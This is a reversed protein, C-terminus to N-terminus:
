TNQNLIERTIDKEHQINILGAVYLGAQIWTIWSATTTLPVYDPKDMKELMWLLHSLELSGNKNKKAILNPKCDKLLQLYRKVLIKEVM